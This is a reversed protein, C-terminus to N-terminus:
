GEGAAEGVSAMMHDNGGLGCGYLGQKLRVGLYYIIGHKKTSRLGREKLKMGFKPRSLPNTGNQASWVKYSTYLDRSSVDVGGSHDCCEDIWAALLDMERQYDKTASLVIEPPNLGSKRWELSGRVAWALIGPYENRLKEPLHRDREELPITVEFPLLQVRRWIAHDDGRIVPKHNGAMWIKFSPKFEFYEGYLFRAPIRDQGTLQKILSEALRGGDEIESTSVLRAGRLRAVDNSPGSSKKTM